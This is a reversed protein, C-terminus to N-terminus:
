LKSARQPMADFHSRAKLIWEWPIVFSEEVLLGNTQAKIEFTESRSGVPISGTFTMAMRDRAENEDTKM